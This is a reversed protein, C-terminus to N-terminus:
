DIKRRQFWKDNFSFGINLNFFNEKILNADTTGRSGYEIGINMNSFARGVPLGIGFSMGFENIQENNVILGTNEFRMGARYTVKQLYSTLSNYKPIYFGGVAIKRSNEFRMNTARFTRNVLQSTTLTTFDIGVFWKKPKSLGTGINFKSPLKINTIAQSGLENVILDKPFAFGSPLWFVSATTRKNRSKLNATPRYTAGSILQLKDTIMKRYIVGFNISAGLLRSSNIEQADYQLGTIYTGTNEIGGFSYSVDVGLSIEKNIAYGAALFVRNLGGKGRYRADGIVASSRDAFGKKYGVSTQPMLGFSMGLRGMPLGIAFYDLSTTSGKVSTTNTELTTFKQNGGVEYTTLELVGLSAPNRLNLHISDAYISLGGMAKNEVTGRFKEEGLGFFSYPSASGEQANANLSALAVFVIIIKKIM